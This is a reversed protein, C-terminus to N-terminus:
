TSSANKWKFLNSLITSIENKQVQEMGNEHVLIISNKHEIKKDLLQITDNDLVICGKSMPDRDSGDLPSGHIWIGHGDKGRVKDYTNPYSLSFALPGYFPDQPTFRKRITYVGLPTKLDGEKVTITKTVTEGELVEFSDTTDGLYYYVYDGATFYDYKNIRHTGPTSFELTLNYQYSKIHEAEYGLVRADQLAVSRKRALTLITENINSATNANLMSVLYSMATVLQMTNSGEENDYGEDEFKAEIYAYIDDFNFPITEKIAM